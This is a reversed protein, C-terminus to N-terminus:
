KGIRLGTFASVFFSFFLDFSKENILLIFMNVPQIVNLCCEMLVLWYDKIVDM